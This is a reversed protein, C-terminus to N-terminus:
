MGLMRGVNRFFLDHGIKCNKLSKMKWKKESKQSNPSVKGIKVMEKAFNKPKISKELLGLGVTGWGLGVSVQFCPTIASKLFKAM